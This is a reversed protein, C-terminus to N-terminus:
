SDTEIDIRWFEMCSKLCFHNKLYDFISFHYFTKHNFVNRDFSIKWIMILGLSVMQWKQLTKCFSNVCGIDIRSFEICSNLQFQDRLYIFNSFHYFTKHIFVNQNFSIKGIMMLGLSVIQWIKALKQVIELFLYVCGIGIRWFEVCSKMLQSRNNVHKSTEAKNNKFQFHNKKFFIMKLISNLFLIM